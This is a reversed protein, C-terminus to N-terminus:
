EPKSDGANSRGVLLRHRIIKDFYHVGWALSVDTEGDEKMISM